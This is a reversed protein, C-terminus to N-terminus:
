PLRAKVTAGTQVRDVVDQIGVYDFSRIRICALMVDRWRWDTTKFEPSSTLSLDTSLLSPQIRRSIVTTEESTTTLGFVPPFARRSQSSFVATTRFNLILRKHQHVVRLQLRIM